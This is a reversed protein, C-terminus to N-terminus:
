HCQFFATDPFVYMVGGDGLNIDLFGEDFQVLVDDTHEKYQLWIPKGGAITWEISELVELISDNLEEYDDIEDFIEAPLLVEHCVFTNEEPSRFSEDYAPAKGNEGKSIQNETLSLIETEDNGPGYAEHNIIDTIFLSFARADDPFHKRLDPVDNLDLTFLHFMKQDKRRPWDKETVGIPMGAIRNIDSETPKRNKVELLYAMVPAHTSAEIAADALRQLKEITM